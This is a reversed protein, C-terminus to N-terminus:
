SPPRQKLDQIAFFQGSSPRMLMPLCIRSEGVVPKKRAPDSAFTSELTLRVAANEASVASVLRARAKSLSGEDWDPFRAVLVRSVALGLVSDGLFELRENSRGDSNFIHSRHTLARELWEIHEFRYGLKHELDCREEDTM